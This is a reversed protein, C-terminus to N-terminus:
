KTPQVTAQGAAASIKARRVRGNMEAVVDRHREPKQLTPHRPDVKGKDSLQLSTIRAVRSKFVLSDTEGVAPSFVLPKGPVAIAGALTETPMPREFLTGDKTVATLSFRQRGSLPEEPNDKKVTLTTGNEFAIIVATSAGTPDGGFMADIRPSNPDPIEDLVSRLQGDFTFINPYEAGWHPDGNGRKVVVMNQTGDWGAELQAAKLGQPTRKGGIYEVASANLERIPGRYPQETPTASGTATPDQGPHPVTNSM